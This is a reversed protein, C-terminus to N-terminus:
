KLVPNGFVSELDTKEGTTLMRHYSTKDNLTIEEDDFLNRILEVDKVVPCNKKLLATRLAGSAEIWWGNHSLIEVMKDIVKSKSQRQNDHGIGQLKFGVWSESARNKRYFITTDIDDDPDWDLVMWESRNIDNQDKIFSGLDTNTYANIVLSRLESGAEKKETNSINDWVGKVLKLEAILDKLKM